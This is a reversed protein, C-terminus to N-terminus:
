ETSDLCFYFIEGGVAEPGRDQCPYSTPKRAAINTPAPPCARQLVAPSRRVIPPAIAKTLQLPAGNTAALGREYMGAAASAIADAEQELLDNVSGIVLLDPAADVNAREQQITHALEHAMLRRGESTDLTRQDSGLVISRGVAYARAGVARTSEAA